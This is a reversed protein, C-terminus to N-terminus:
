DDGDGKNNAIEDLRQIIPRAKLAQVADMLLQPLDCGIEEYLDAYVGSIDAMCQILLDVQSQGEDTLFFGSRRRDKKDPRKEILSMKLLIGTRQAVLQHPIGLERGIESLSIGPKRNIIELTSSVRVPIVLGRLEYIERVQDSSTLILSQAAKGLYAKRTTESNIFTM